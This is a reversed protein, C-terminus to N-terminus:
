PRDFRARWRTAGRLAKRLAAALASGLRELEGAVAPGFARELDAAIDWRLNTLLWNVEGAFQADGDIEVTPTEGALLGAAVLAPREAAVRLRLDVVAPVPEGIGDCWELLGAPTIRYVLTPPAPLLRPWGRWSLEVVRGALPALRATATAESALVHNLLLTLREIAAPALWRNLSAALTHLM